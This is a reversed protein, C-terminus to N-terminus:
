EPYKVPVSSLRKDWWGLELYARRAGPHVNEDSLGNVMLEPSWISWLSHLDRMRPGVAAVAMVLEYALAEPFDDHAAKYGRNIASPIATEQYPLVGPPIDIPLWTTGYKENLAAILEPEVGIYHMPRGAAEIQLMPSHITWASLDPNTGYGGAAVDTTGDILQQALAVPTLHRIDATQLTIGYHNLFLRPYVGWDSQSRLGISIRKGELQALSTLGERYTIFVKGGGWWAECYLLKFRIAIRQPLYDKLEPTGGHFGLQLITDETNFITTSWRKGRAMERINYIYGPTEQPVLVVPSDAQIMQNMLITDAALPGANFPAVLGPVSVAEALAAPGALSAHALIVVLAAVASSSRAATVELM